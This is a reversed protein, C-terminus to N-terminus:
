IKISELYTAVDSKWWYKNMYSSFLYDGNSDRQDFDIKMSKLTDLIIKLQEPDKEYRNDFLIKMEPSMSERDSFTPGYKFDDQEPISGTVQVNTFNKIIKYTKTGYWGYRHLYDMVNRGDPTVDDLNIGASVLMETIEAVDDLTQRNKTYRCSYLLYQLCNAYMRYEGWINNVCLGKDILFRIAYLDMVDVALSLLNQNENTECFWDFGAADLVTIFKKILDAPLTCMSYFLHHMVSCGNEDRFNVMLDISTKEFIYEIRQLEFKWGCYMKLLSSLLIKKESEITMIIDDEHHYSFVFNPDVINNEVLFKISNMRTEQIETLGHQNTNDTGVDLQSILMSMITCSEMCGCPCRSYYKENNEYMKWIMSANKKMYEQDNERIAKFIECLVPM